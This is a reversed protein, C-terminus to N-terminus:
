KIAMLFVLSIIKRKTKEEIKNGKIRKVVPTNEIFYTKVIQKNVPKLFNNTKPHHGPANFFELENNYRAYWVKPKGTEKSFFQTDQTPTIQKFNTNNTTNITINPTKYNIQL